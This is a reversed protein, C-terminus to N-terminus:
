VLIKEIGEKIIKRCLYKSILSCLFHLKENLIKETLTVLDASFEPNPWM